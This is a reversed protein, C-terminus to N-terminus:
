LNDLDLEYKYQSNCLNTMMNKKFKLILFIMMKNKKLWIKNM